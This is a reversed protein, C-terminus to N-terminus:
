KALRSLISFGSLRDTPVSSTMGSALQFALRFYSYTLEVYALALETPALHKYHIQDLIYTAGYSRFTKADFV